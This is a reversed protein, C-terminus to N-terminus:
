IKLNKYIIDFMRENIKDSIFSNHPTIIVNEYDWLQSNSTLPESEFVDLAIGKFKKVNSILANEDILKGRAVNVLVSNNKMLLLKENDILHYTEETLAISLILIDTQLIAAKIDNLLFSQNIIDDDIKYIDVVNINVGFGKLRKAIEKGINGYGVITVTKGTLEEVSRNKKWVKSEKQKYFQSMSKYINLLYMLAWEAIPISYINNANYYKIGHLNFYEIPLRELGASTAQVIKLNEFKKVSNYLFLNNCVVCDFKSVDILLEEMENQVFTIEYGLQKIRKLQEDSYSFCGTLLLQRNTQM